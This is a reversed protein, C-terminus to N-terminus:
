PRRIELFRILISAIIRMKLYNKGVVNADVSFAVNANSLFIIYNKNRLGKDLGALRLVSNVFLPEM